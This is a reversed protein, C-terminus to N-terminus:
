NRHPMFDNDYDDIRYTSLGINTSTFRELQPRYDYVYTVGYHQGSTLSLMQMHSELSYTGRDASNNGENNDDGGGGDSGDSDDNDNGDESDDSNSSSLVRM